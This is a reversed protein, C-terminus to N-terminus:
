TTTAPLGVLCLRKANARQLLAERELLLASGAEIGLCSAGAVSLVDLTPLGIVPLDFRRDQRPGAVKVVVLEGFALEGARQITADTGEFAEVAIVVGRKVVVTQGVDLAALQRAVRAGLQLDADEDATPRRSTLVGAPALFDRLLTSSDLLAIGDEDLRAAVAGLLGTVSRDKAALFLRRTEADFPAASDLLARKTVQGAMIAEKVGQARLFRLLQSVQGVGLEEYADVERALAPDAWGKVGVAVVARGQRRAAQAVHFPFRGAGAIIALPAPM